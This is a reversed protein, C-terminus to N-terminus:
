LQGCCRMGKEPKEPENRKPVRMIVPVYDQGHLFTDTPFRSMDTGIVSIVAQASTNGIGTIDQIAHSTQKEEPKMFDDIEDDLNKIHVNLEDLHALLEKM